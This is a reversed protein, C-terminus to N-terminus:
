FLRFYKMPISDSHVVKGSGDMTYGHVNCGDSDTFCPDRYLKERLEPTKLRWQNLMYWAIYEACLCRGVLTIKKEKPLPEDYSIHYHCMIELVKGIDIDVDYEKGDVYDENEESHVVVLDHHKKLADELWYKIFVEISDAKQNPRQFNRHFGSLFDCGLLIGWVVFFTVVPRKQYPMYEKQVRRCIKHMNVMYMKSNKVVRLSDTLDGFIVRDPDNGKDVLKKWLDERGPGSGVFPPPPTGNRRHDLACEYIFTNAEVFTRRKRDSMPLAALCLKVLSKDSYFNKGRIFIRHGGRGRVVAYYLATYTYLDTDTSHVVLKKRGHERVFYDIYWMVSQEGEGLNTSPKIGWRTKLGSNTTGWAGVFKWDKVAGDIVFLSDKRGPVRGIQQRIKNAYYGWVKMRNKPVGKGEGWVDKPHKKLKKEIRRMKVVFGSIMHNCASEVAKDIDGKSKELDMKDFVDRTIKSKNKYRSPKKKLIKLDEIAKTYRKLEKKRPDSTVPFVRDNVQKFVDADPRYSRRTDIDKISPRNALDFIAINTDCINRYPSIHLWIRKFVFAGDERGISNAFSNEEEHYISMEHLHVEDGRCTMTYTKDDKYYVYADAFKNKMYKKKQTSKDVGM